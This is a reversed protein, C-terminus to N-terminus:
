TGGGGDLTFQWRKRPRKCMITTITRISAISGIIAATTIGITLTTMTCNTVGTIM